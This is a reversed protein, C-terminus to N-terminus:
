SNSRREQWGRPEAAKSQLDDDQHHSELRMAIRVYADHAAGGGRSFNASVELLLPCHSQM